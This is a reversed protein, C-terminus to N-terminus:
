FTHKLITPGSYTVSSILQNGWTRWGSRKNRSFLEVHIPKNVNVPFMNEIIEYFKDPKKSHLNERKIKIISGIRKESEPPIVKGLTSVTLLEHQGRFWYGM